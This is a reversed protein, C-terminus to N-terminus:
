GEDFFFAASPLRKKYGNIPMIGALPKGSGPNFIMSLLLDL